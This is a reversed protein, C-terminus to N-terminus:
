ATPAARRARRSKFLYLGGAAAATGAVLTITLATWDPAPPATLTDVFAQAQHVTAGHQYKAPDEAQELRVRALTDSFTGVTDPSLVLVTGQQTAGVASALDRLDGEMPPNQGVVVISLDIGHDRAQKVVRELQPTVDAPASVRDAAIDVLITRLDVGPPLDAAAPTFELLLPVPM